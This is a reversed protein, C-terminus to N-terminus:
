FAHHVEEKELACGSAYFKVRYLIIEVKPSKTILACFFERFDCRSNM